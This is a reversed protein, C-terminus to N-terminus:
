EEGGRGGDTEMAINSGANCWSDRGADEGWSGGRGVGRLLKRGAGAVKGGM